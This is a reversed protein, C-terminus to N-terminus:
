VRDGRRRRQKRAGGNRILRVTLRAREIAAAADTPRWGLRIVAAALAEAEYILSGARIALKDRSDSDPEGEAVQEISEITAIVQAFRTALRRNVLGKQGTTMESWDKLAPM